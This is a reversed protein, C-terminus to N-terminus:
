GSQAQVSTADAAQGAVFADRCGDSCFYATTSGDSWVSGPNAQEVQMGCIPDIAYRAGGGFRDRHRALYWLGALTALAVINLITTANWSFGTHVPEAPRSTPLIGLVWFVGETLLGGTSMVAWFIGALVLAQRRGYLRIYIVVLPAALLDAFIFAVVGGFSVGGSWLAAALPVNGVSCVCSVFAVVPGIVANAISTWVGHGTLFLARYWSAPVAVALFGAVVFGLVIERRLMRLDAVTYTAADSWGALTRWSSEHGIQESGGRPDGGSDGGRGGRSEGDPDGATDGVSGGPGDLDTMTGRAHRRAASVFRGRFVRRGVITLLAIMIAGGIVEALAFEWGLLVWLVIGLELVLNTSAIMFVMSATFDAGRAFLTRALASAAYSCSSSAAGLLSTRVITRPRHDGMVQQMRARSVFAQVAGSLAFGLVLAWLTAWFMFFAESLSHGITDIVSM